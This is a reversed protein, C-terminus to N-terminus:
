TDHVLCIVFSLQGTHPLQDALRRRPTSRQRTATPSKLEAGTGAPKKIGMSPSSSMRKVRDVARVYRARTALYMDTYDKITKRCKEINSLRRLCNKCMYKSHLEIEIQNHPDTATSILKEIREEISPLQGKNTYSTSYYGPCTHVQVDCM